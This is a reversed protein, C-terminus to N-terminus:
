QLWYCVMGSVQVNSTVGISFNNGGRLGLPAYPFPIVIGRPGGDGAFNMPGTIAVGGDYLTIFVDTDAPDALGVTFAISIIRISKGSSGPVIVHSGASSFDIAAADPNPRFVSQYASYWTDTTADYVLGHDRTEIQRPLKASEDPM